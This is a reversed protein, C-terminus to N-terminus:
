KPFTPFAILESRLIKFELSGTFGLTVKSAGTYLIKIELEQGNIIVTIIENEKRSLVLM